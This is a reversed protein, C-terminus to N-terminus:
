TGTELHGRDLPLKVLPGGDGGVLRTLHRMEENLDLALERLAQNMPTDDVWRNQEVHVKSRNRYAAQKCAKNCHEPPRGRQGPRPTLPTGCNKCVPTPAEAWM